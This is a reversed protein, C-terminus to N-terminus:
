LQPFIARVDTDANKRSSAVHAIKKTYREELLAIKEELLAAQKRLLAANEELLAITKEKEQLVSTLVSQDPSTENYFFCVSKNTAEAIKEILGTKIDDSRLASHLRQDNDFGLLNAIESLQFGADRLKKKLDEGKM